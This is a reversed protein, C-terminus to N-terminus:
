PKPLALWYVGEDFNEVPRPYVPRSVTTVIDVRQEGVGTGSCITGQESLWVITDTCSLSISVKCQVHYLPCISELDQSKDIVVFFGSIYIQWGPYRVPM